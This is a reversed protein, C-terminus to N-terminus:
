DRGRASSSPGSWDGRNDVDGTATRTESRQLRDETLSLRRELVGVTRTLMDLQGVIHDLTGALAEPLAMRNIDTAGGGAGSFDRGRYIGGGFPDGGGNGSSSRTGGRGAVGGEGKPPVRAGSLPGFGLGDDEGGGTGNGLADDGAATGMREAKWTDRFIGADGMDIWGEMATAPSRKRQRPEHSPGQDGELDEMGFRHQQRQQAQQFERTNTSVKSRSTSSRSRRNNNGGDALRDAVPLSSRPLLKTM